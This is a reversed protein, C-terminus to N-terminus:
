RCCPWRVTPRSDNMPGARTPNGTRLIRLLRTSVTCSAATASGTLAVMPVATGDNREAEVARLRRATEAGDIGPLQRDLIVLRFTGANNGPLAAINALLRDHEMLVGLSFESLQRLELRRSREWGETTLRGENREIRIVRLDQRRAVM